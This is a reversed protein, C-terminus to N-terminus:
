YSGKQTGLSKKDWRYRKIWNRNTGSVEDAFLSNRREGVQEVATVLFVFTVTQGKIISATSNRRVCVGQCSSTQCVEFTHHILSGSHPVSCADSGARGNCISLSHRTSFCCRSRFRRLLLKHMCFSPRFGLPSM